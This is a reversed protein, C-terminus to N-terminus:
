YDMVREALCRLLQAEGGFHVPWVSKIEYRRGAHIVWCREAIGSDLPALFEFIGAPKGGAPTDLYELRQEVEVVTVQRSTILGDLPEGSLDTEGSAPHEVTVTFGQRAFILPLDRQARAALTDGLPVPVVEM